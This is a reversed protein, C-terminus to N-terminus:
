VSDVYWCQVQWGTKTNSVKVAEIVQREQLMRLSNWIDQPDLMLEIMLQRFTIRPHEQVKKLIATVIGQNVLQQALNFMMM